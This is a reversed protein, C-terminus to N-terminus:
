GSAGACDIGACSGPAARRSGVYGPGPTPLTARTVASGAIGDGRTSRISGRTAAKTAAWGGAAVDSTALRSSSRASAEDSAPRAASAVSAANMSSPSSSVTAGDVPSRRLAYVTAWGPPCEIRSKTVRGSM